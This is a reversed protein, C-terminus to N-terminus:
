YLELLDFLRHQEGPFVASLDASLTGEPGKSVGNEEGERLHPGRKRQDAKEKRKKKKLETRGDRGFCCEKIM